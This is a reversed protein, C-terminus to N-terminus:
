SEQALLFVISEQGGIANQYGDSSKKELFWGGAQERQYDNNTSRPQQEEPPIACTDFVV